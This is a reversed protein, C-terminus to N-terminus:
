ETMELSLDLLRRYESTEDAELEARPGHELVRGGDIVVIEDVSALTSLRHAVILATRGRTLEAVAHELREETVPDIRATAEDLVILDPERLWIRAMSLLQEEGASLSVDRGGLRAGLDGDALADLGARRLAEVVRDDSITDDFLTVNDRVSGAVLHVEQPIMAVRRRLEHMPIDAIPVGGLRIEGDTADVLRLVLRTLTTKGGGNRGVLGVTRGGEIELDIDTLIPDGDGYHFGLRDCSVSLAGPAPSTTGRDVVTPRLARLEAVRVMAGSAKQVVDFHDVVDELPRRLMLAYQVLLLTTGITVIGSDLFWASGALALAIGLVLAFQVQAWFTVFAKESRETSDLADRSDEIFRWMVHPEAGLARLDEGATLREEIGGYMRAHAGMEEVSSMVARDRGRTSILGAVAVYVVFGLAIRLDIWVLVVFMGVLLLLVSAVRAVVRSLFDSVSTIDGDVRQILEGPSHTRHFELDLGLVHEALELRLRNATNWATATALWTVFVNVFQAVLALVLYIVAPGAVDSTTAGGEAAQDVVSRVILPGALPFATASTLALALWLYRSREAEILRWLARWHSAPEAM